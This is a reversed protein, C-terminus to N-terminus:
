ARWLQILSTGPAPLTLLRYIGCSNGLIINHYKQEPEPAAGGRLLTGRCNHHHGQLAEQAVDQLHTSLCVCVYREVIQPCCHKYM